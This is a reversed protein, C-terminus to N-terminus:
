KDFSCGIPVGARCKDEEEKEEEENKGEFVFSEFYLIENINQTSGDVTNDYGVSIESGGVCVFGIKPSNYLVCGQAM